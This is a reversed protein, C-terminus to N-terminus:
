YKHDKCERARMKIKASGPLVYTQPMDQRTISLLFVLERKEGVSAILRSFSVNIYYVVFYAILLVVYFM